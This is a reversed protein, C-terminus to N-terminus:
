ENDHRLRICTDGAPQEPSVNPQQKTDKWLLGLDKITWPDIQRQHLCEMTTFGENKGKFNDYDEKNGDFSPFFTKARILLFFTNCLSLLVHPKMQRQREKSYEGWRHLHSLGQIGGHLRQLVHQRHLVKVYRIGELVAAGSFGNLRHRGLGVHALQVHGLPSRVLLLSLHKVERYIWTSKLGDPPPQWQSNHVTAKASIKLVLGDIMM